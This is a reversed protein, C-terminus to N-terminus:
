DGYKTCYGHSKHWGIPCDAGKERTIVEKESTSFQKCYSGRSSHFGVPCKDGSKVIINEGKALSSTTPKCYDGSRYTGTPCDKGVRPIPTQAFTAGSLGVVCCIALIQRCFIALDMSGVNGIKKKACPNM